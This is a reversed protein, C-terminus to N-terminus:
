SKTFKFLKRCSRPQKEVAQTRGGTKSRGIKQSKKKNKQKKRPRGITHTRISTLFAIHYKAINVSNKILAKLNRVKKKGKTKKM